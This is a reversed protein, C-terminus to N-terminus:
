FYSNYREHITSWSIENIESFSNWKKMEKKLCSLSTDFMINNQEWPSLHREYQSDILTPDIDAEMIHPQIHNGFPPDTKSREFLKSTSSLGQKNM